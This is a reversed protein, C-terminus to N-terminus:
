ILGIQLIARSVKEGKQNKIDARVRILQCTDNKEIVKGVVTLDDGIYVPKVFKSEVSQLLSREGPLYVGALTSYLSATLMGYVVKNEYGKAKAFDEDNHLPNEDGSIQLFMEQMEPTITRTFSETLGEEIEDFTYKNM